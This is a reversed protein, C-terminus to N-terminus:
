FVTSGGGYGCYERPIGTPIGPFVTHYERYERPIWFENFYWPFVATNGPIGRPIGPFVTRYERPFVTTDSVFKYPYGFKTVFFTKHTNVFTIIM